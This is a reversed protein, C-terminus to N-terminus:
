FLVCCTLIMSSTSGASVCPLVIGSSITVITSSPQWVDQWALKGDKYALYYEAECFEFASNKDKSLTRLEDSYLNPADYPSDHYLDYHLDIFTKLDRKTEVKKIIIEAMKAKNKQNIGCLYMRKKLFACFLKTKEDM